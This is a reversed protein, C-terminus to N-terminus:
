ACVRRAISAVATGPIINRSTTTAYRLIHRGDETYGVIAYTQATCDIETQQAGHYGGLSAANNKTWFITRGEQKRVSDQDWWITDAGPSTIEVWEHRHTKVDCAAPLVVSLMLLLRGSGTRVIGGSQARCAVGQHSSCCLRNVGGTEEDDAGMGDFAYVSRTWSKVCKRALDGAIPQALNALEHAANSESMTDLHVLGRM